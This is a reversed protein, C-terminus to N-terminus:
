IAMDSRTVKNHKSRKYVAFKVIQNISQSAYGGTLERVLPQDITIPRQAYDAIWATAQEPSMANIRKMTPLKWEIM